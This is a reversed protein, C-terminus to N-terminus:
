PTTHGNLKSAAYYLTQGAHNIAQAANMLQNSGQAVNGIVAQLGTRLLDPSERQLDLMEKFDIAMSRMSIAANHIERLAEELNTAANVTIQSVNTLTRHENNLQTILTEMRAVFEGIKISLQDIGRTSLEFRDIADLLDDGWTKQDRAIDKLDSVAERQLKLTEDINTLLRQQETAVQLVPQELQQLHDVLEQMTRQTRDTVHRIEDAAQLMTSSIDRMDSLMQQSTQRMDDLAQQSAQRMDDLIQQSIRTMNNLMDQTIQRLATTFNTLDGFEKERKAALDGIRAREQKVEDFLQQVSQLLQRILDIESTSKQEAGQQTATQMTQRQLALCLSADALADILREHLREAAQEKESSRLHTRVNVLGTLIFLGLLLIFDGTALSSLTLLPSLTHGFGQQWLYLFPLSVQSQDLAPHSRVYSIYFSYAQVAQSIGYWTLVLPAFILINRVWELFRLGWAPMDQAKFYEVVVDADIVQHIDTNAWADILTGNGIADSLQLLRNAATPSYRNIERALSDLKQKTELATVM